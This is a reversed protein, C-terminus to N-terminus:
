TADVITPIFIQRSDQIKHRTDQTKHRTDKHTDQTKSYTNSYTLSAVYHNCFLLHDAEGCCNLLKAM